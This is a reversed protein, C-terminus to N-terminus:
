AKRLSLEGSIHKKVQGTDDLLLLEGHDGIGQMVGQIKKEANFLVVEKGSFCDHKNWEKLFPELHADDFQHIMKIVEQSLTGILKNRDIFEGLIDHISVWPQSIDEGTKNSIYTNIGMGIIMTTRGHSEGVLDILVGALKKDHYYIDNPWKVELGKIGFRELTRIIAIAAALSLGSLELPDKNCCWALSFYINHGYPSQWERGRRGRGKTQQEAVVAHYPLGCRSDSRINELLYDNTSEVQDLISIELEDHLPEYINKLIEDIDLLDLGGEIRYGRGSVSQIELNYNTTLQKVGKWIASRTMDLAHGLDEGSHFQGDKLVQLIKYPTKDKNM